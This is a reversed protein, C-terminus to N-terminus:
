LVNGLQDYVVVAQGAGTVPVVVGNVKLATGGAGYTLLPNLWVFGTNKLQSLVGQAASLRLFGTLEFQRQARFDSDGYVAFVGKRVHPAVFDGSVAVLAGAPLRYVQGQCINLIDTVLWSSRSGNVVGAPTGIYGVIIASTLATGGCLANLILLSIANSQAATLAKHLGGNGNDVNDILYAALGRYVANTTTNIGVTTTAVADSQVTFNLYATQGPPDYVSNRQSVNPKLDLVQLGDDNFDQRILCIYASATSM